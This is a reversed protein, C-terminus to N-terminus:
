FFQLFFYFSVCIDLSRNSWSHAVASNLSETGPAPSPGCQNKTKKDTFYSRLVHLGLYDLTNHPPCRAKVTVTLLILGTGTTLSQGAQAAVLLVDKKSNHSEPQNAPILTAM